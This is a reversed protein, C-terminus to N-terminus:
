VKFQELYEEEKFHLDGPVILCYPPKGFNEKLLQQITGYKIINDSGLRACGMCLTNGDIINEKRKKEIRLLYHLAEPITLSKEEQLDLLLLTHMGNKRNIKLVDYPTEVNKNELPISTTKGFKYLQLGTLGVASFVSANHIVNVPINRKKAELLIEVHTTAMLPDGIILLAVDEKKAQEYLVNAEEVFKRDALQIKKGYLKELDEKNCQLVSTYNELYLYKCKKVAELGKLTIDKEDALGLGILYLAM